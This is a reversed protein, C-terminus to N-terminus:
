IVRRVFSGTAQEIYQFETSRTLLREVGFERPFRHFMLTRRCLRYTRIEFGSRYSSFLDLRVPRIRCEGEINAYVRGRADPETLEYPEDGYDFVLEFLWGSPNHRALDIHPPRFGEVHPDLLM